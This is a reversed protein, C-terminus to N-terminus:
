RARAGAWVCAQKPVGGPCGSALQTNRRTVACAHVVTGQADDAADCRQRRQLLRHAWCDCRVCRRCLWPVAPVWVPCLLCGPSLTKCQVCAGARPPAACRTGRRLLGPPRARVGSEAGAVGGCPKRGRRERSTSMNVDSSGVRKPSDHLPLRAMAPAAAPQVCPDTATQVCSPAHAATRRRLAGKGAACRSEATRQWRIEKSQASNM